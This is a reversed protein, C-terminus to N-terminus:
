AGLFCIFTQRNGPPFRICIRNTTYRANSIGTFSSYTPFGESVSDILDWIEDLVDRSM